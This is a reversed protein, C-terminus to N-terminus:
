FSLGSEEADVVSCLRPNWPERSEPVYLRHSEPFYLRVPVAPARDFCVEDAGKPVTVIGKITQQVGSETCLVLCITNDRM